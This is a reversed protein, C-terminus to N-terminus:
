EVRKPRQSSLEQLKSGAQVLSRSLYGRPGSVRNM